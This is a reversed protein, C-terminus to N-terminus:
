LDGIDVFTEDDPQVIIDTEQGEEIFRIYDIQCEAQRDFVDFRFNSIVGTWASNQTLDIIFESSGDYYHRVSNAQSYSSGSVAFFMQFYKGALVRPDAKVKVALKTYKSADINIKPSFLNIDASNPSLISLKGENVSLAANPSTFRELNGAKDFNWGIYGDHYPTVADNDASSIILNGDADFEAEYGLMECFDKLRIVPLGDKLEFTYGIYTEEGDLLAMDSGVSLELTHYKSEVHLVGDFRNWTHFLNLMTFFGKRSSATVQVDGSVAEPVFDFNMEIGNAEVKVPTEKLAVLEIKSIEFSATPSSVPDIRLGTLTGNWDYIDSMDIYYEEFNNSKILQVSKFKESGEYEPSDATKFFINMHGQEPTKMTIHIAPKSSLDVTQDKTYIQAISGDKGKGKLTSSSGLSSELTADYINFYKYDGLGFLTKSFDWSTISKMKTPDITNENRLYRIEQSTAPHMKTIRDKQAETPKVDLSAHSSMDNTFVDKINELYGYGFEGSPAIYHGESYENWNSVFITNDRWDGYGGLYDDRIYEAVQKHGDLTILRSRVDNRGIDNHGIALTPVVYMDNDLESNLTNIQYDADSGETKYHYYYMADFDLEVFQGSDDRRTAMLIIDDFGLTRIDERMFAVAEKAGDIGGFMSVFNDPSWITLVPKNDLVTYRPDSFYYEKWYKWIYEEFNGLTTKTSMSSNEWMICFDVMDSYKANFYGDHIAPASTNPVKIPTTILGQPPYWCVHQFDIGHEAMIKIEWDALEPSGEDYYGLWPELEAFPAVAQWGEGVLGDHWLNCVHVGVNYDDDNNAVPEAPYDNHEVYTKATVDDFWMVCDSDSNVGIKIGNIYDATYPVEGVTKGCVKIVATDNDPDTEIRLIQWVNESFDRLKVDSAYWAGNRSVIKITEKGSSTLAFYAGDVHEPLLIYAEFIGKGYISAFRKSAVSEVGSLANIKVSTNDDDNNVYYEEIKIDGSIDYSDPEEGFLEAISIFNDAVAYNHYMKVYDPIITGTGEDTSGIIIRSIEAIEPLKVTGTKEGNIYAFLEANDFDINFVIAYMEADKEPVAVDTEYKDVGYLSFVGYDTALKAVVNGDEDALGIYIGDDESAIICKTQLIARGSSIKEIDRYLAVHDDTFYDTVVATLKGDTYNEANKNDVLWGTPVDFDASPTFMGVSDILLYSDDDPFVGPLKVESQLCLPRLTNISDLYFVRLTDAKNLSGVNVVIKNELTTVDEYISAEILVDDQYIAAIAVNNSLNEELTLEYSECFQTVDGVDIQAFAKVFEIEDVGVSCELMSPKIEFGTITGTLTAINFTYENMGSNPINANFEYVGDTTTVTVTLTQNEEGSVFRTAFRFQQYKSSDLVLGDMSVTLENEYSIGSAVGNKVETNFADIVLGEFDGNTDFTWKEAFAWLAYVTTDATVNITNVATTGHETASWGMFKYGARTPAQKSLVFEGRAYINKEPLGTVVDDTGAAYTVTYCAPQGSIRVTKTAMVSENYVSVAKVVVDGNNVATLVGDDSITAVNENDVTWVVDSACDSPVIEVTYQATGGKTTITDNGVISLSEPDFYIYEPTIVSSLVSSIQAYTGKAIEDHGYDGPHSGFSNVSSANKYQEYALYPNEKGTGYDEVFTMDNVLFGYKEAMKITTASREDYKFMTIVVVICEEPVADAIAGYFADYVEELVATDYVMVNEALQVTLINPKYETIYNIMAQIDANNLIDEATTEATIFSEFTNAGKYKEADIKALYNENNTLYYKTRNFYDLEVRSAAMGRWTDQNSWSPEVDAWPWGTYPSHNLFSNGFALYRFNYVTKKERQGSIEVTVSASSDNVGTATIVLTGNKLAQYTVTNGNDASKIALTEDNVAFDVSYDASNKSYARATVSVEGADTTIQNATAEAYVITNKDTHTDTVYVYYTKVEGAYAATLTVVGTGSKSTVVATNGNVTVNAIDNGGTVNWEVSANSGTLTVSESSGSVLTGTATVTFQTEALLNASEEIESQEVIEATTEAPLVEPSACVVMSFALFLTLMFIFARKM